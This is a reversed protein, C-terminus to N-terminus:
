AYDYDEVRAHILMKMFAEGKSVGLIRQGYKLFQLLEEETLDGVQLPMQDIEKFEDMLKNLLKKGTATIAEQKYRPRKQDAKVEIFGREKLPRLLRTVTSIHWCGLESLQTPTLENKHTSLLFLIHQQAPSVNFKKELEAWNREMCFYLARVILLMKQKMLVNM